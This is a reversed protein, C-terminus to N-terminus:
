KIGDIFKPYNDFDLLLKWVVEPPADVDQVSTSRMVGDALNTITTVPGKRLREEVSADVVIGAKKYPGREYRSLTGQHYHPKATDAAHVVSAACLAVCWFLMQTPTGVLFRLTPREM